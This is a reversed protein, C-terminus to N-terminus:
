GQAASAATLKADWQLVDCHVWAQGTATEVLCWGDNIDSERVLRFDATLGDVTVTGDRLNPKDSM